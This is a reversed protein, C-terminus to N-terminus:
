GYVPEFDEPGHGCIPCVFDEPLEAGEYYYSCIRCRWGIIRSEEPKKEPKPKIFEQYFAYTLPPNDNLKKADLIEAIFLTHSGLDKSDIVKGSIFACSSWGMFPIGYDDVPLPVAGMKDIDRGSQMGFYSITEYTCREDLISITFQGSKKLLECTYNTNILAFSITRPTASSQICTNTICGNSIGDAVTALMFVGYSLDYLAKKDMISRTYTRDRVLRPYQYKWYKKRRAAGPDKYEHVFYIASQLESGRYIRNM